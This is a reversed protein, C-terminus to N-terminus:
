PNKAPNATDIYQVLGVTGGTSDQIIAFRSGFEVSHPKVLVEGGLGPVLALTKDLDAVRVVGLWSPKADTVDDPIPAVGARANGNSSLVFESKKDSNTEPAVDYGLAQHYFNTTAQPDKVYLEFWNWAGM